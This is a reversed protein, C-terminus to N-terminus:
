FTNRVERDHVVKISADPGLLLPQTKSQSFRKVLARYNELFEPTINKLTVPFAKTWGDCWWWGVVNDNDLMSLAGVHRDNYFIVMTELDPRVARIARRVHADENIGDLGWRCIIWEDAVKAAEKFYITRWQKALMVAVNRATNKPRGGIPRLVFGEPIKFPEM